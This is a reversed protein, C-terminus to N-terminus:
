QASKLVDHKHQQATGHILLGDHRPFWVESLFRRDGVKDFVLRLNESPTDGPALTTITRVQVLSSNTMGEIKVLPMPEATASIRYRGAPLVKGGANFEYSVNVIHAAPTQGLAAAAALLVFLGLRGAVTNKM